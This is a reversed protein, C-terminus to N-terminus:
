KETAERETSGLYNSDILASLVYPVTLFYFNDETVLFWFCVIYIRIKCGSNCFKCCLIKIKCDPDEYQLWSYQNAVMFIKKKVLFGSNTVM